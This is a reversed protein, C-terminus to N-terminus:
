SQTIYWLLRLWTLKLLLAHTNLKNMVNYYQKQFDELRSGLCYWQKPQLTKNQRRSHENETTTHQM